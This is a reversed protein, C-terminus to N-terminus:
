NKVCTGVDWNRQCNQVGSACGTTSIGVYGAPCYWTGSSYYVGDNDDWLCSTSLTTGNCDVSTGYTIPGTQACSAYRVGCWMGTQYVGTHGGVAGWSTGDCYEFANSSYNYRLSGATVAQCAEGGNGIKITGPTEISVVPSVTGVGLKNQIYQSGFVALANLSLGANKVQDTTGVNVPAAVNGDPATATPGTWESAQLAGAVFLGLACILFVGLLRSFPHSTNGTQGIHDMFKM